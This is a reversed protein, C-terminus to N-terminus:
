CVVIVASTGDRQFLLAYSVTGHMSVYTTTKQSLAVQEELAMM